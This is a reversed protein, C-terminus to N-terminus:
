FWLLTSLKWSLFVEILCGLPIIEEGTSFNPTIEVMIAYQYLALSVYDWIHPDMCMLCADEGTSFNPTIEVLSLMSISLWFRVYDWIHPDMCMLCAYSSNLNFYLCV